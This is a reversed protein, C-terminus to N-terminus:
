GRRRTRRPTPCCMFTNYVGAFPQNPSDELLGSSRVALPYRARDLFAELDRAAEDPFPSALFRAEIESDSNAGIAFDRLGNQELFIDFVDTGLM